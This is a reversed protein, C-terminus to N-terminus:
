DLAPSYTRVWSKGSIFRVQLLDHVFRRRKRKVGVPGIMEHVIESGATSFLCRLDAQVLFEEPNSNAFIALESFVSSDVGGSDLM